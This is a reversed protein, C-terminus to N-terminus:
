CNSEKKGSRCEIKADGHYGPPCACSMSRRPHSDIVSCIASPGCPQHTECLDRCTAGSDSDSLRIYVASVMSHYRTVLADLICGDTPPCDQDVVCQTRNSPKKCGFRPDGILGAPCSCQFEHDTVRCTAGEGCPNYYDCPNSCKGNVCAEFSKCDQNATCEVLVCSVRPDGSTGSPCQCQPQHNKSM